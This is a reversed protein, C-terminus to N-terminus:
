DTFAISIASTESHKIEASICLACDIKQSREGESLVRTLLALSLVGLLHAELSPVTIMDCLTYHADGIHAGYLFFVNQM